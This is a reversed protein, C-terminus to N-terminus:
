AGAKKTKRNALEPWISQWDDPRLDKRTVAGSTAKEIAVCNAPSPAGGRAVLNSIASQGVGIASALQSVGGLASIARELSAAGPSRDARDSEQCESTKASAVEAAECADLFDVGVFWENKNVKSAKSACFDILEAEAPIVHGVCPFTKHEVLEIGMCSVRDAHAAIRSEPNISRGVKIHGNSFLCVYLYQM